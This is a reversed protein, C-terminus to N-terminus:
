RMAQAVCSAREKGVLSLEIDHLREQINGNTGRAAGTLDDDAAHISQM